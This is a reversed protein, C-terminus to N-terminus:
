NFLARLYHIIKGRHLMNKNLKEIWATEGVRHAHKREKESRCNM